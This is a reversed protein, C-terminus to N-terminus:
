NIKWGQWYRLIYLTSSLIILSHHNTFFTFPFPRPRISVSDRSKGPPGSSFRFIHSSCIYDDLNSITVRQICNKLTVAVDAQKTSSASQAFNYSTLSFLKCHWPTIVLVGPFTYLSYWFCYPSNIGKNYSRATQLSNPLSQYLIPSTLKLPVSYRSRSIQAHLM